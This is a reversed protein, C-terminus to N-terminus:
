LEPRALRQYLGHAVDINCKQDYAHITVIDHNAIQLCANEINVNIGFPLWPWSILLRKHSFLFIPEVRMALPLDSACWITMGPFMDKHKRLSEAVRDRISTSDFKAWLIRKFQCKRIYKRPSAIACLM